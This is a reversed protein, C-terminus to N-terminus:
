VFIDTYLEYLDNALFGNTGNFARAILYGATDTCPIGEGPKYINSLVFVSYSTIFRETNRYTFIDGIKCKM